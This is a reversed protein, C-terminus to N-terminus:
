AGFLNFLFRFRDSLTGEVWAADFIKLFCFFLAVNVRPLVEHRWYGDAPATKRGRLQSIVLGASLVSVYFALTVFRPLADVFSGAAFVHSVFIVHYLFNGFGAACVTAFAIRLKPSTKFYRMFAPYFFFDVLLEKFYYYYRNWFDALSRAALPNVTNRPIGYGAMRIVAVLAHGWAAIILLDILYNSLLSAWHLGLPIAESEAGNLILWSLRPVNGFGHIATDLVLHLAALLATWVGLKLAKLRTRALSEADKAEFRSLFSFGKGFPTVDGGWFPRMYLVRLHAPTADKAKQDTLAYALFWVCSAWIAIFAWAGAHLWSGPVLLAALGIAAMLAVMQLLVPRRRAIDPGRQQLLLSARAFFLFALVAAGQLLLPSMPAGGGPSAALSQMMETFGSTRLPRIFLIALSAGVLILLRRHPWLATGLLAAAVLVLASASLQRSALLALLLGAHVCAIGVPTAAFALAVPDRDMGLWRQRLLLLRRLPSSPHAAAELSAANM